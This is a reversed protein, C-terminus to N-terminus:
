KVVESEISRRLQTTDVLVNGTNNEYGPSHKEWHGFGDSDFASQVVEVGMRGLTEAVAEVGEEVMKEELFELNNKIMEPMKTNLPMRLFSRQPNSGLGMEHILGLEANGMGDSRKKDNLIGIKVDPMNAFKKLLDNIGDLNLQVNSM